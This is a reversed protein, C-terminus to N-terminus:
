TKSFRTYEGIICISYICAYLGPQAECSYPFWVGLPLNSCYNQFGLAAVWGCLGLVVGVFFVNCLNKSRAICMDTILIQKVNWGRVFKEDFYDITAKLDDCKILFYLYKVALVVLATSIFSNQDRGDKFIKVLTLVFQPLMAVSYISYCFIRHLSKYEPTPYLGIIQLIYLNRKFSQTIVGEM